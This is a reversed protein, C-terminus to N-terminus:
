EEDYDPDYDDEPDDGTAISINGIQIVGDWNAQGRGGSTTFPQDFTVIQGCHVFNDPNLLDLDSLLICGILGADISYERGKQDSYSGDGFMTGYSAFRRGDKMVFEGDVCDHGKITLDCFEDWDEHMVYCLDGVYYTGAEM